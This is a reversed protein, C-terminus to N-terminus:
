RSIFTIFIKDFITLFFPKQNRTWPEHNMTVPKHNRTWPKPIRPHKQAEAETCFTTAVICSHCQSENAPTSKNKKCHVLSSNLSIGWKTDSHCADWKRLLTRDNRTGLGRPFPPPWLAPIVHPAYSLPISGMDIAWLKLQRIFPQVVGLPAKAGYYFGARAQKPSFDGQSNHWKRGTSQLWRCNIFLLLQKFMCGFLLCCM